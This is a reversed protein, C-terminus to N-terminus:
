VGRSGSCPARTPAARGAGCGTGTGAGVLLLPGGGARGSAQLVEIKHQCGKGGLDEAPLVTRVGM